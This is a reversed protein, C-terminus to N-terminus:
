DWVGQGEGIGRGDLGMADLGIWGMGRLLGERIVRENYDILLIYIFCLYLMFLADGTIELLSSQVWCRDRDQKELIENGLDDCLVDLIQGEIGRDIEGECRWDLNM